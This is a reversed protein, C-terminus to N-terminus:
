KISAAAVFTAPDNNLFSRTPESTISTNPYIPSAPIIAAHGANM